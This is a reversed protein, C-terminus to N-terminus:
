EERKDKNVIMSLEESRMTAATVASIIAGRFNNCELEYLGASTTGGPSTVKNKLIAPHEKMAAIMKSAGLVTQIALNTADPRSLGMHVGADALSEIFLFVYAPGSGSLGTVANLLKEEVELTIGVSNFIDKTIQIHKKGAYKGRCIAAPCEGVLATISPMVRVVPTNDPMHSEISETKVGAAISILWQTPKIESGIQPFIQPCNQPKASYLIIDVQSLLDSIDNATIVGLENKLKICKEQVIDTLVVNKSDILDKEIIGRIIAEGMNGVGIIGLKFDM